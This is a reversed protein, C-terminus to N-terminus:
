LLYKNQFCGGTLVIKSTELHSAISLIIEVLTNHFKAAIINRSIELQIDTLIAKIITM